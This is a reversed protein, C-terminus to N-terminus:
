RRVLTLVLGGDGTLRVAKGPVLEVSDNLEVTRASQAVPCAGEVPRGWRLSVNLRKTSSYRGLSLTLNLTSQDIGSAYGERGCSPDAPENQDRRFTTTTGTAMKLTGSYLVARNDRIEVDVAYREGGM